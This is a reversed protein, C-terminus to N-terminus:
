NVSLQEFRHSTTKLKPRRWVLPGKVEQLQLFEVMFAKQGVEGGQLLVPTSHLEWGWGWCHPLSGETRKFSTLWVSHTNASPWHLSFSFRSPAVVQSEDSTMLWFCMSVSLCMQLVCRLHLFVDVCIQDQGWVDRFCSKVHWVICKMFTYKWKCFLKCFTDFLFLDFPCEKEKYRTQTKHKRYGTSHVAASAWLKYFTFVKWDEEAFEIEQRQQDEVCCVTQWNPPVPSVRLVKREGWLRLSPFYTGFYNQTQNQCFVVSEPVSPFSCVQWSLPSYQALLTSAVSAM